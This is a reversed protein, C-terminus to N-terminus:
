FRLIYLIWPQMKETLYEGASFGLLGGVVWSVITGMDWESSNSNSHRKIGLFSPLFTLVFTSFLVEGATLKIDFLRIIIDKPMVSMIFGLCSAISGKMGGVRDNCIYSSIINSISGIIFLLIFSSIYFHTTAVTAATANHHSNYSNTSTIQDLLVLSPYLYLSFSIYDMISTTQNYLSSLFSMPHYYIQSINIKPYLPTSYLYSTQLIFSLLKFFQMLRLVTFAKDTNKTKKQFLQLEMKHCFNRTMWHCLSPAKGNYNCIPIHHFLIGMDIGNPEKSLSYFHYNTEHARKNYLSSYSYPSSYSPSSPSSVSPSSSPINSVNIEIGLWGLTVKGWQRNNGFFGTSSSTFSTILDENAPNTIFLIAGLGFAILLRRYSFDRIRVGGQRSQRRIQGGTGIYRTSM